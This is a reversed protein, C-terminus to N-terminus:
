AFGRYARAHHHACYSGADTHQGCYRGPLADHVPWRCTHNTLQHVLIGAPATDCRIATCNQVQANVPAPEPKPRNPSGRYVRGRSIKIGNRFCAGLVSCRTRGLASAIQTGSKGEKALARVYDIADPTWSQPKSM